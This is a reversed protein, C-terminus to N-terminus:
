YFSQYFIFKKFNNLSNIELIKNGNASKYIKYFYISDQFRGNQSNLNTFKIFCTDEIQWNFTDKRVFDIGILDKRFEFNPCVNPQLITNGFVIKCLNWKGLFSSDSIFVDRRNIKSSVRNKAFYILLVFIIYLKVKNQM